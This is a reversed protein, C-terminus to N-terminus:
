THSSVPFFDLLGLSHISIHLLTPNSFPPLFGSSLGLPWLHSLSGPGMPSPILRCHHSLIQLSWMTGLLPIPDARWRLIKLESNNKDLPFEPIFFFFQLLSQIFPWGSVAGGQSGDWKCVDYGLVIASALFHKCVPAQYLQGRVLEAVV